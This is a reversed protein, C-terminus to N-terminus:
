LFSLYTKIKQEFNEPTLNKDYPIKRDFGSIASWNRLIMTTKSIDIDINIIISYKYNIKELFISVIRGFDIWFRVNIPYHNKCGSTHTSEKKCFPCFIM